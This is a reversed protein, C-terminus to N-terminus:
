QKEDRKVMEKLLSAFDKAVFKQARELLLPIPSSPEARRYFEEVGRMLATAEARNAAAFKRAEGEAKPPSSEGTALASISAFDLTFPAEGGIHIKSQEALKPALVKMAEVFSKGVLQHAQKVLLRTPSSPESNAYYSLVSALANSAEDFTSVVSGKGAAVDTSTPASATEGTIVDVLSIDEGGGPTRVALIDAVFAVISNALQPLEDFSPAIDHGAKEIFLNQIKNLATVITELTTRLKVLDDLPEHRTFAETISAIDFPKEEARAPLKRNAVLISRWSLAGSRRDVLLTANQLPLISTPLDDWTKVLASRLANGGANEAPHVTDWQTELLGLTALIGEAFGNLDDSLICYKTGLVLFRIDHSKALHKQLNELVPKPNFSKRDFDRYSGPLQSEAVALFNQVDPDLEPDPGSPLDPSIAQSVEAFLPM